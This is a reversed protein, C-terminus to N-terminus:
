VSVRLLRFTRQLLRWKTKKRFLKVLQKCCRRRLTIGAWAELALRLARRSSKARMGQVLCRYRRSSRAFDRWAVINQTLVTQQRRRLLSSLTVSRRQTERWTSWARTLVIREHHSRVSGHKGRNVRSREVWDRWCILVLTAQRARWKDLLRRSLANLRAKERWLGFISTIWRAQYWQAVKALQTNMYLRTQRYQLWYRLAQRTLTAMHHKEATAWMDRRRRLMDRHQFWRLFASKLSSQYRLFDAQLQQHASRRRRQVFHSWRRIGTKLAATEVRRLSLSLEPSSLVHNKWAAFTTAQLTVDHHSIAEAWVLHDAKLQQTNCRLREIARHLRKRQAKEFQAQLMRRTTVFGAWRGFCRRALRSVIIHRRRDIECGLKWLREWHLFHRRQCASDDFDIASEWQRVWRQRELVRHKWANMVIRMCRAQHQRRALQELKKRELQLDKVADRWRSFTFYVLQLSAQFERRRFLTTSETHQDSSGLQDGQQGCDSALTAKKVRVPPKTYRSPSIASRERRLTRLLSSDKSRHYTLPKQTYSEYCKAQAPVYARQHFHRLAAKKWAAFHRSITQRRWFLLAVILQDHEEDDTTRSWRLSTRSMGATSRSLASLRDAQALGCLVFPCNTM